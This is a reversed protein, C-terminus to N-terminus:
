AMSQLDFTIMAGMIEKLVLIVCHRKIPYVYVFMQGSWFQSLVLLYMCNGLEYLYLNFSKFFIEIYHIVLHQEIKHFQLTMPSVECRCRILGRETQIVKENWICYCCTKCGKGVSCVLVKTTRFWFLLWCLNWWLAAM